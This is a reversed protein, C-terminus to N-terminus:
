GDLRATGERIRREAVALTRDPDFGEILADLDTSPQERLERVYQTILPIARIVNDVIPVHAARASRSLPNLDIVIERKGMDRLARARDGDELPVVVLDAGYIGEESVPARDHSIGPIQKDAVRGLIDSGGHDELHEIIREIRDESRHFLNVEIKADAADALEVTEAPVLAAVNGNVSFVPREARLLDAAAVRCAEDASPITEEGLLYDFASGRGEAHMGQLHTIGAEIGAEIRYRTVLDTYRPHDEPIESEDDVGGPVTPEM